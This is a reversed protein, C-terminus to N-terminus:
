AVVFAGALGTWVVLPRRDYGFHVLFWVPLLPLWGHFLSLRVDFMYITLGLFHIGLLHSGFDALWLCQPLPIGVACMSILLSSELWIGIVTLILVTDSFWFFNTPFYSFLYVPVVVALFM